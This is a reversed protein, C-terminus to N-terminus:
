WHTRADQISGSPRTAITSSRTLSKSERSAEARSGPDDSNEPEILIAATCDDIVKDSEDRAYALGARHVYSKAIAPELRICQDLDALANDFQEQECFIRALRHLSRWDGLELRIADNLEAMAEVIDQKMMWVDGRTSYAAAFQPDLQIATDCDAM